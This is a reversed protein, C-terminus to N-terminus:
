PANRREPHYFQHDSRAILSQEFLKLSDVMHQALVSLPTNTVIQDSHRALTMELARVLDSM